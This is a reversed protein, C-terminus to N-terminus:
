GVAKSLLSTCEYEYVPREETYEQVAKVYAHVVKETGVQKRECVGQRSSVVRVQVGLWQGTLTYYDADYTSGNPDNKSWSVPFIKAVLATNEAGVTFFRIGNAPDIDPIELAPEADLLDALKRLREIYQERKSMTESM